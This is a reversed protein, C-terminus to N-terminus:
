LPPARVNRSAEENTKKTGAGTTASAGGASSHLLHAVREVVNKTLIIATEISRQVDSKFTRLGMSATPVALTRAYARSVPGYIHPRLNRM